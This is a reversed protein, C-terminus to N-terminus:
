IGSPLLSELGSLSPLMQLYPLALQLGNLIPLYLPLTAVLVVAGGFAAMAGLVVGIVAPHGLGARPVARLWVYGLVMAVIGVGIGAGTLIFSATLMGQFTEIPALIQSVLDLPISGSLAAFPLRTVLGSFGSILASPAVGLLIAGVLSVLVSGIGIWLVVFSRIRSTDRVVPQPAQAYPYAPPPPPPIQPPEASTPSTM